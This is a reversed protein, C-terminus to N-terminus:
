CDDSSHHCIIEVYADERDLCVQYSFDTLHYGEIDLYVGGCSKLARMVTSVEADLNRPDVEGIPLACTENEDRLYLDM